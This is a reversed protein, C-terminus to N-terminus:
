CIIKRRNKEYKDIIKIVEEIKEAKILEEIEKDNQLLESFKILFEIHSNNDTAAMVFILYVKSEGFDVPKKLKLLSLCTKLVGNEPRSHPMAVGENLVIYFGLKNIDTIMAEVYEKKIYKKELLKKAAVRIATEWNEISDMILINGDLVKNLM